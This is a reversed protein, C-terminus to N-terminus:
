AKALETEIKLGADELKQKNEERGAAGDIGGGSGNCDNQKLQKKGGLKHHPPPPKTLM